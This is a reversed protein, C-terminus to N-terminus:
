CGCCTFAVYQWVCTSHNSLESLFRWRRSACLVQLSCDRHLPIYTGAASKTINFLRDFIGIDLDPHQHSEMNRPNKMVVSPARTFYVHLDLRCLVSMM